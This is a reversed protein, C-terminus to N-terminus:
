AFVVEDGELRYPCDARNALRRVTIVPHTMIKDVDRAACLEAFQAEPMREDSAACGRATDFVLERRHKVKREFTDQWDTLSVDGGEFLVVFREDDGFAIKAGTDDIMSFAFRQAKPEDAALRRKMGEFTIGGYTLNQEELHKWVEAAFADFLMPIAGQEQELRVAVVDAHEFIHRPRWPRKIVAAVALSSVSRKLGAKIEATPNKDRIAQLAEAAAKATDHRGTWKREGDVMLNASFKDRSTIYYVNPFRKAEAKKVAVYEKDRVALM